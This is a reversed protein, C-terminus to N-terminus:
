LNQFCGSEGTADALCVGAAATKTIGNVLGNASEVCGLLTTGASLLADTPVDETDTFICCSGSCFPKFIPAAGAPAVNTWDPAGPGALLSQCDSATAARHTFCQTEGVALRRLLPHDDVIPRGSVSVLSTAALILTLSLRM